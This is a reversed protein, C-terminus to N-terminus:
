VVKLTLSNGGPQRRRDSGGRDAHVPFGKRLDPFFESYKELNIFSSRTRRPAKPTPIPLIMALDEKASMTM